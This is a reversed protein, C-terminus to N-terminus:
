FEILFEPMEVACNIAVWEGDLGVVRVKGERICQRIANYEVGKYGTTSNFRNVSLDDFRLKDSYTKTRIRLRGDSFYMLGFKMPDTWSTSQNDIGTLHDEYCSLLPGLLEYNLAHLTSEPFQNIRRIMTGYSAKPRWYGPDKKTPTLLYDWIPTPNSDGSMTYLLPERTSPSTHAERSRPLCEPMARTSHPKGSTQSFDLGGRVPSDMRATSFTDTRLPRHAPERGTLHGLRSASPEEGRPRFSDENESSSTPAYRRNSSAQYRWLIPSHVM